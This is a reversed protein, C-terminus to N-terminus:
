GGGLLASLEVAHSPLTIDADRETIRVSATIRAFDASYDFDEHMLTGIKDLLRPFDQM